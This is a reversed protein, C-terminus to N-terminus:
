RQPGAGGRAPPRRRGRDARRGPRALDRLPSRHQRAARRRPRHLEGRVREPPDLVPHGAHASPRDPDADDVRRLGAGPPDFPEHAHGADALPGPPAAPLRLGPAPRAAPAGRRHRLLAARPPRRVRRPAGHRARRRRPLRRPAAHGPGPQDPARARRRPPRGHADPVRGGPRRSTRRPCGRRSAASRSRGTGSSGRGCRPAPAPPCRPPLSSRRWCPPSSPGSAGDLPCRPVTAVRRRRRTRGPGAPRAPSPRATRGAVARAPGVVDRDGLHQHSRAGLDLRRQDVDRVPGQDRPQLRPHGSASTTGQPYAATGRLYAGDIAARRERTAACGRRRARQEVRAVAGLARPQELRHRLDDGLLAVGGRGDGVDDAGRPTERPSTRRATRRWPPRSGRPRGGRRRRAREVRTRSPRGRRAVAVPARLQAGPM